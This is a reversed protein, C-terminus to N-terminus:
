IKRKTVKKKDEIKESELAPKELCLTQRSRYGVGAADAVGEGHHEYATQTLYGGHASEDHGM